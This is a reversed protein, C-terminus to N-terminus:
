IDIKNYKEVVEDIGGSELVAKNNVELVYWVEEDCIDLVLIISKKGKKSSVNALSQTIQGFKIEDRKVKHMKEGQKNNTSLPFISTKEL